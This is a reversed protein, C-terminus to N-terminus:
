ASLESTCHPCRTAALPIATACRPCDRTAVPPVPKPFLRNIQRVLLFVVFAVILFDIVNNIFLGINITPAGAAKAEAISAYHHTSLTVFISSFDVRGLILGIPPMLIDAVLSSVIKGFAAGIIVGIALDVVSGRMAFDRFEKWM